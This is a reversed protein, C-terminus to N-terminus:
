EVRYADKGNARCDLSPFVADFPVWGMRILNRAPPVSVATM